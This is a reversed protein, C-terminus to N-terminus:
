PLLEKESSVFADLMDLLRAYFPSLAHGKARLAQGLPATWTLLHEVLFKEGAERCVAANEAQGAALAFHEKLLLYHMFELEAAIHDARDLRPEVGFARYFGMIDALLQAKQFDALKKFEAEYPFPGAVPDFLAIYARQLADVHLSRGAEIVARLCAAVADDCDAPLEWQALLGLTAEDPHAFGKSLLAYLGSRLELRNPESPVAARPQTGASAPASM